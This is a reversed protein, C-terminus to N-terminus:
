RFEHQITRHIQSNKPLRQQVGFYFCFEMPYFVLHIGMYSNSFKHAHTNLLRIQNTLQAMAGFKLSELESFKRLPRLIPYFKLLQLISFRVIPYGPTKRGWGGCWGAHPDAGPPEISNGP